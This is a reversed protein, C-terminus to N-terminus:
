QTSLNNLATRQQTGFRFPKKRSSRRHLATRLTAPHLRCRTGRARRKNSSSSSSSHSSDWARWTPEEQSRALAQVLLSRLASRPLSVSGVLTLCPLLAQVAWSARPLASPPLLAQSAELCGVAQLLSVCCGHAPHCVCRSYRSTARLQRKGQQPQQGPMQMTNFMDAGGPGGTPLEPPQPMRPQATVAVLVSLLLLLPLCRCTM